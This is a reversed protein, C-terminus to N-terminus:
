CQNQKTDNVGASMCNDYNLLIQMIDVRYFVFYMFIIYIKFLIGFM